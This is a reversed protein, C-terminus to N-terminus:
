RNVSVIAYLRALRHRVSTNNPDHALARELREIARPYDQEIVASVGQEVLARVEDSVIRRTSGITERMDTVPLAPIAAARVLSSRRVPRGGEAPPAPTEGERTTSREGASLSPRREREDFRRLSELVLVQWHAGLDADPAGRRTPPPELLVRAGGHTILAAFAEFGRLGGHCAAHVQGDHTVITGLARGSGDICRLTLSHGGLGALQVFEAPSFPGGGSCAPCHEAVLEALEDPSVTAPVARLREPSTPLPGRLDEIRESGLVIGVANRCRELARMVAPSLAGRADLAAIIIEADVGSEIAELEADSVCLASLAGVRRLGDAVTARRRFDDDVLLVLTGTAPRPARSPLPPAPATTSRQIDIATM